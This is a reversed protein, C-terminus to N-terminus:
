VLAHGRVRMRILFGCTYGRVRARVTFKKKYHVPYSGILLEYM